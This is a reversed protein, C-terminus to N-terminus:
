PTNNLQSFYSELLPFREFVGESAEFPFHLLFVDDFLDLAVREIQLRSFFLPDLSSKGALSVPLLTAPLDFLRLRASRIAVAEGKKMGLITGHFKLIPFELADVAPGAENKGGPFLLEVVFFVEPVLGLAALGTLYLALVARRFPSRRASPYFGGGGAGLAPAFSGHGEPGSLAAGDEAALAKLAAFRSSSGGSTQPLIFPSRDSDPSRWTVIRDVVPSQPIDDFNHTRGALRRFWGGLGGAGGLSGDSV